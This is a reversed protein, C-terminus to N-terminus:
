IYEEGIKRIFFTFNLVSIYKYTYILYLNRSLLFVFILKQQIVPSIHNSIILKSYNSKYIKKQLIMKDITKNKYFDGLLNQFFRGFFLNLSIVLNTDQLIGLM